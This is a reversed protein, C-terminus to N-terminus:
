LNFRLSRLNRSLWTFISQLLFLNIVKNVPTDAENKVCLYSFHLKQVEKVVIFDEFNVSIVQQHLQILTNHSM